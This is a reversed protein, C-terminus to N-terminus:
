NCVNEIANYRRRQRENNYCCVVSSTNMFYLGLFIILLYKRRRLAKWNYIYIYADTARRNQSDERGMNTYMYYTDVDVVNHRYFISGLGLGM